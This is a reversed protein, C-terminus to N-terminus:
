PIGKPAQEDAQSTKSARKERRSDQLIRGVFTMTMGALGAWLSSLIVTLGPDHRVSMGVWYRVERAVLLHDGAHFVEGVPVTGTKATGSPGAAGLPLVDFTVEGERGVGGKPVYSLQLAFRATEPPSPFPFTGPGQATGSVYLYSREGQKLSQLPVMAAYLDRGQEDLLAVGISYGEKSVLYRVGQHELNQTMWITDTTRATGDGVAIEYAARKDQGDVEYGTHLEILTTEGRLRSFDFFRGYEVADYSAPDANPLTEGETLRLVGNFHFLSNFVVGGLLAMFSLHFLIMGAQVLSPKRKWIRSFFAAGSSVALLVLLGNFWLTSFILEWARAERVVTVGAVCFVLVAVLLAIALTPSVLLAWARALADRPARAPRPAPSPPREPSTM